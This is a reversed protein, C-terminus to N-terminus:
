SHHARGLTITLTVIKFDGTKKKEETRQCQAKAVRFWHCALPTGLDGRDGFGGLMAPQQADGWERNM